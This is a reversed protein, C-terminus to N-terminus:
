VGLKFLKPAFDDITEPQYKFYERKQSVGIPSRTRDVSRPRHPMPDHSKGVSWFPFLSYVRRNSCARCGTLVDTRASLGFLAWKRVETAAVLRLGMVAALEPEHRGVFDYSWVGM